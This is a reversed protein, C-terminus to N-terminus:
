TWSRASITTPGTGRLARGGILSRQSTMRHVEGTTTPAVRADACRPSAGAVTATGTTSITVDLVATM